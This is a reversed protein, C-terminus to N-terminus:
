ASCRSWSIPSPRTTSRTRLVLTKNAPIPGGTGTADGLHGRVLASERPNRTEPLAQVVRIKQGPNGPDDEYRVTVVKFENSAISAKDLEAIKNTGNDIRFLRM